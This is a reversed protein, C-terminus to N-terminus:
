RRGGELIQEWRLVRGGLEDAGARAATETEFAALGSSMPTPLKGAQVYFATRADLWVGSEHDVVFLGAGEPPPHEQVWDRLCGIDDFVDVSGSVMVVEGAFERQSVAMRCFSCTEENLVIEVPEPKGEVCSVLSLMVLGISAKM